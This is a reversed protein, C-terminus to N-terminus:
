LGSRSMKYGCEIVSPYPKPPLTLDPLPCTEDILALLTPLSAELESGKMSHHWHSLPQLDKGDDKEQAIGYRWHRGIASIWYLQTDAWGKFAANTINKIVRMSREIEPWENEHAVDVVLITQFDCPLAELRNVEIHGNTTVIVFGDQANFYRSLITSWPAYFLSPLSANSRQAYYYAAGVVEDFMNITPKISLASIPAELKEVKIDSEENADSSPMSQSAM